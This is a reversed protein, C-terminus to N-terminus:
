SGPAGIWRTLFALGRNKLAAADPDFRTAVAWVALATFPRLLVKV